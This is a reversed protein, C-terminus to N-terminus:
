LRNATNRLWLITALCFWRWRSPGIHEANHAAVWVPRIDVAFTWWRNGCRSKRTQSMWSHMACTSCLEWRGTTRFAEDNCCLINEVLQAQPVSQLQPLWPMSWWAEATIVMFLWTLQWFDARSGMLDVNKKNFDDNEWPKGMNKRTFDDNEWPKGITKVMKGYTKGHNEWPELQNVGMMEAGLWQPGRAATGSRGRTVCSPRRSPRLPWPTSPKKVSARRSLSAAPSKKHLDYPIHDGHEISQNLPFNSGSFGMIKTPFEITEQLNERLGIGWAPSWLSQLPVYRLIFPFTIYANSNPYTTKKPRLSMHHFMHFKPIKIVFFSYSASKKLSSCHPHKKLCM